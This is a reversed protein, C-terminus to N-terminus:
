DLIIKCGTLWLPLGTSIEFCPKTRLYISCFHQVVRHFVNSKLRYTEGNQCKVTCRAVSSCVSLCRAVIYIAGHIVNRLLVEGVIAWSV